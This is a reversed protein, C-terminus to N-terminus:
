LDCREKYSIDELFSDLERNLQQDLTTYLICALSPEM